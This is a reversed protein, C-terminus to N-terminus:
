GEAGCASCAASHTGDGNDAAGEQSATCPINRQDCGHGLTCSHTQAGPDQAFQHPLPEFTTNQNNNFAVGGQVQTFILNLSGNTVKPTNSGQRGLFLTGSAVQLHVTLSGSAAFLAPHNEGSTISSIGRSTLNLTVEGRTKLASAYQGATITASNLTIDATMPGEIILCDSGGTGTIVYSGTHPKLEGGGQTYGDATIVIQGDGLDLSVSGAALAPVPLLGILLSLSILLALLRKTRM